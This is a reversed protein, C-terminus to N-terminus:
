SLAKKMRRLVEQLDEAATAFSFRVCKEGGLGYADGPVCAIEAKELLFDALEMSTMNDKEIKVWAYFAGEPYRCSVGPIKNLGEVFMKRRVEYGKRMSEMEEECDLAVIAAEQSFGSVCTATHQSLKYIRKMVEGSGALYGLRWGTMAVAKSFGNMTIVQDAIEKYSGLSIHSNGDYRLKEYVEDAIVYIGTKKVFRVIAGAEEETIMRGTPNNPSNIILLKTQDTYVANLVEETIRYNDEYKLGIEVPIGGCANVMPAYSVWSPDMILAEEGPNLLATVALYVGFKGGPTVLINEPDCVIGNDRKLKGALKKRLPLIGKGAVYHTNGEDISKKAAECIREPTPYDPEGGALSIVNRGEAIMARAKDMIVLSASPKLCDINRNFRELEM